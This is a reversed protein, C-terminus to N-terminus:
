VKRRSWPRSTEGAQGTQPENSIAQEAPVVEDSDAVLAASAEVDRCLLRSPMCSVTGISGVNM